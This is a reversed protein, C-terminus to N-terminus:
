QDPRSVTRLSRTVTTGGTTPSRARAQGAAKGGDDLMFGAKLAVVLTGMSVLGYVILAREVVWVLEYVPSLVTSDGLQVAWLGMVGGPLVFVAVWRLWGSLLVLGAGPLFYVLHWLALDFIWLPAM